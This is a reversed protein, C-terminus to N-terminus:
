CWTSTSSSIMPQRAGSRPRAGDALTRLKRVEGDAPHPIFDAPLSSRLLDALRAATRGATGHRLQGARDGGRTEALTRSVGAEEAAEKVVTERPTMGAPIGGAVLHDLKGPDLAKDAARRAVWLHLGDARQVLGNVHVGAALVGFVPLAGRDVRQWCRATAAPACM